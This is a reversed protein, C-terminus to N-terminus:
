TASDWSADGLRLRVALPRLVDEVELMLPMRRGLLVLLVVAAAM